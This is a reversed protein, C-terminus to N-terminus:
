ERLHVVVYVADGILLTNSLVVCGTEKRKMDVILVDFFYTTTDCDEDNETVVQLKIPDCTEYNILIRINYWGNLDPDNGTYFPRKGQEIRYKDIMSNFEDTDLIPIDIIKDYVYVDEPFVEEFTIKM